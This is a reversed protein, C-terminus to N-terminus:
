IEAYNCDRMKSFPCARCKSQSPTAQAPRRGYWVEDLKKLQKKTKKANFRKEFIKGEGCSWCNRNEQSQLCQQAVDQICYVTVIRASGCSVGYEEFALAYLGTQFQDEERMRSPLMNVPFKYEIVVDLIPAEEWHLVAVDFRGIFRHASSRVLEESFRYYEGIRWRSPHLQLFELLSWPALCSSRIKRRTTLLGSQSRYFAFALVGGVLIIFAITNLSNDM